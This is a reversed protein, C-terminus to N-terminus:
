GERVVGVYPLHRWAEDVDLGYGVLFRDPVVFGVYDLPVERQTCVKKYLLAAIRLSAPRQNLFHTRIFESTLGTDVIGEVLIVHRDQISRSLDKVLQVAGSSSTGRYSTVEVFDVEHPIDLARVLDALFIFSGKLVGALIPISGRYDSGIERGLELVRRRIQEESLLVEVRDPLCPEVMLGRGMTESGSDLLPFAGKGQEKAAQGRASM